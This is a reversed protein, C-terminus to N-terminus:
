LDRFDGSEELLGDLSEALKVNDDVIGTHLSEGLGLIDGLLEIVRDKAEISTGLEEDTLMSQLVQATLVVECLCDDGICTGEKNSVYYEGFFLAATDDEHRGNSGAHRNGVVSQVSSGLGGDLSESTGEGSITAGLTDSGVGDGGTTDLGVHEVLVCPVVGRTGGLVGRDLVNLSTNGFENGETSAGDGCIDGSHDHEQAM